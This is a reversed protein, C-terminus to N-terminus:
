NKGFGNKHGQERLADLFSRFSNKHQKNSHSQSQPQPGSNSNPQSPLDVGKNAHLPVMGNWEEKKCRNLLNTQNASVALLWFEDNMELLMLKQGLELEQSSVVNFLSSNSATGWSGSGDKTKKKIWWWLGTVAVLMILLGPFLVGNTSNSVSKPSSSKSRPYPSGLAGAKSNASDSVTVSKSSISMSRKLSDLRGSQDVQVNQSSSGDMQYVVVVWILLFCTSLGILFRLIKPPNKQMEYKLTDWNIM